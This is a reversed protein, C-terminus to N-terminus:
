AAVVYRWDSAPTDSAGGEVVAAKSLRPIVRVRQGRQVFM